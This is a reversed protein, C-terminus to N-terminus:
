EIDLNSHVNGSIHILRKKKIEGVNDLHKNEIQIRCIPLNPRKPVFSTVRKLKSKRIHLIKLSYSIYCNLNRSCYEVMEKACM